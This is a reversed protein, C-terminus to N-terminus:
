QKAAQDDGTCRAGKRKAKVTQQGETTVDSVMESHDKRAHLYRVCSHLSPVFHRRCMQKKAWLRSSSRTGVQLGKTGGSARAAAVDAAAASKARLTVSETNPLMDFNNKDHMAKASWLLMHVRLGLNRCKAHLDQLRCSALAVRNQRSQNTNVSSTLDHHICKAPYALTSPSYHM